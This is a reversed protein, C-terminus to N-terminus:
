LVPRSWKEGWLHVQSHSALCTFVLGQSSHPGLIPHGLPPSYAVSSSWPGLHCRKETNLDRTGMQGKCWSGEPWLQDDPALLIIEERTLNSLM